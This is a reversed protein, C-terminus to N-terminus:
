LTLELIALTVYLFGTEFFLFWFVQLIFSYAGLCNHASDLGHLLYHNHCM